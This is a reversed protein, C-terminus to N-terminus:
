TLHTALACFQSRLSVFSSSISRSPIPCAHPVFSAEAPPSLPYVSSSAFNVTWYCPAGFPPLGSALVLERFTATYEANGEDCTSNGRMKTHNLLFIDHNTVSGQRPFNIPGVLSDRRFTPATSPLRFTPPLFLSHSCTM